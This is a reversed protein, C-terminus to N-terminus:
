QMDVKTFDAKQKKINGINCLFTVSDGQQSCLKCLVSSRVQMIYNDSRHRLKVKAQEGWAESEIALKRSCSPCKAIAIGDDSATVGTNNPDVQQNLIVGRSDWTGLWDWLKDAITFRVEESLACDNIVHCLRAQIQVRKEDLTM